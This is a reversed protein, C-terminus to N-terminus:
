QVQGYIHEMKKSAKMIDQALNNTDTRMAEYEQSWMPAQLRYQLDANNIAWTIDLMRGAGTLIDNFSIM